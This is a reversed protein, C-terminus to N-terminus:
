FYKISLYNILLHIANDAVILLWRTLWEPDNPPYGTSKCDKWSHWYSRPSMFNKVWVLYKALQWRDIVFHTGAIMLLAKPSRTIFLFPLGYAIAHVLAPFSRRFKQTAMWHSQFVYDGFLHAILQNMNGGYEM